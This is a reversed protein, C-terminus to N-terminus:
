KSRRSVSYLDVVEVIVVGGTYTKDELSPQRYNLVVQQNEYYAFLSKGLQLAQYRKWYLMQPLM